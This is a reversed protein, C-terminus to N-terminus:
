RGFTLWGVVALTILVAMAILWYAASARQRKSSKVPEESPKYAVSSLGDRGAAKPATHGAGAAAAPVDLELPASQPPPKVADKWLGELPVPKAAGAPAAPLPSRPVAAPPRASAPPTSPAPAQAAVAPM